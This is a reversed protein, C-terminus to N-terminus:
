TFAYKKLILTKNYVKGIYPWYKEIIVTVYYYCKIGVIGFLFRINLGYQCNKSFIIM